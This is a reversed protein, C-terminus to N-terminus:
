KVNSCYPEVHGQFGQDTAFPAKKRFFDCGCHEKISVYM